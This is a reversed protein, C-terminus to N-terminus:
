LVNSWIQMLLNGESTGMGEEEEKLRKITEDPM